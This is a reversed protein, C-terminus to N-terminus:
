GRRRRAGVRPRGRCRRADDCSSPRHSPTRARSPRPSSPATPTASCSTSGRRRCTESDAVWRLQRRLRSPRRGASARHLDVDGGGPLRLEGGADGPGARGQLRARRARRLGVSTGCADVLAARAAACRRTPRPSTPWVSRTTPWHAECAARRARSPRPSTTSRAALSASRLSVSPRAGAPLVAAAALASGGGVAPRRLLGVTRTDVVAGDVSAHHSGTACLGLADWTPEITVDDMPVLVLRPIPEAEDGDGFWFAGLGIWASHLSNSCFPWRGTLTLDEGSARVNGFPGFMGANGQDPDSWVM